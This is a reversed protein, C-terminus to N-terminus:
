WYCTKSPGDIVKDEFARVISAAVTKEESLQWLNPSKGDRDPGIGMDPIKLTVPRAAMALEVNTAVKNQPSNVEADPLQEPDTCHFCLSVSYNRQIMVDRM